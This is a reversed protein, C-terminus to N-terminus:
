PTVMMVNFLEGMQAPSMLRELASRITAAQAETANRCLAGARLEAGCQRLFQEQTCLSVQTGCHHAVEMLADFDVHATLDAQGPEHLPNAYAHNRMAQLTDGRSGGTYGYDIVLGAGGHQAIHTALATMIHMGPECTERIDGTEPVFWLTGNDHHVMREQTGIFQRIPLADFFENAIFFLPQPPLPLLQKRWQIRPHTNALTARQIGTLVPSIECLSVNIAAHFGPIHKTARLADNMLTGRGPGLELLLAEPSPARQWQDAIRAGCLEGFIQSIEPSTTFDGAAGLPDRTMYYGYEPHSLALEMYEAVSLTAKDRLAALM